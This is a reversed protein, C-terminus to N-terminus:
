FSPASARGGRRKDSCAALLARLAATATQRSVQLSGALGRAPGDGAQMVPCQPAMASGRGAAMSSGGGGGGMGKGEIGTMATPERLAIRAGETGVRTRVDGSQGPLGNMPGHSMAGLIAPFAAKPLIWGSRGVCSRVRALRRSETRWGPWSGPGSRSAAGVGSMSARYPTSPMAFSAIRRGRGEGAPKRRRRHDIDRRMQRRKGMGATRIM